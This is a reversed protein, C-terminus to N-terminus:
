LLQHMIRKYLPSAYHVGGHHCYFLDQLIVSDCEYSSHMGLLRISGHRWIQSFPDCITVSSNGHLNGYRLYTRYRFYYYSLNYSVHTEIGKLFRGPFLIISVKRPQLLAVIEDVRDFFTDCMEDCEKMMSVPLKNIINLPDIISTSSGDNKNGHIICQELDNFLKNDSFLFTSTRSADNTGFGIVLEDCNNKFKYKLRHLDRTICAYHTNNTLSFGPYSLVNFDKRRSKRHRGQLKACHSDGLVVKTTTLPLQQAPAKLRYLDYADM